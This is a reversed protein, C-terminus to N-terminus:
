SEVVKSIHCGNFGEVENWDTQKEDYEIINKGLTKGNKEAGFRNFGVTGLGGLGTHRRGGGGLRRAQGGPGRLARGHGRRRRGVGCGGAWHRHHDHNQQSTKKMNNKMHKQSAWINKQQKM